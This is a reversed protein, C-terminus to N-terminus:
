RAPSKRVSTPKKATRGSPSPPETPREAAVEILKSMIKTLRDTDMNAASALASKFDEREDPIVLNGLFNTVGSADGSALQSVAFTNLDCQVNWVRGLLRVQKVPIVDEVPALDADIDIIKPTAMASM